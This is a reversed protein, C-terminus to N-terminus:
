PKVKDVEVQLALKITEFDLENATAFDKIKTAPDPMPMGIIQEITEKPVEWRILDGFITKGKIIYDEAESEVQTSESETPSDTSQAPDAELDSLSAPKV